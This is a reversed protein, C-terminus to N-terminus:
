HAARLHQLVDPRDFANLTFVGDNPIEKRPDLTVIHVDKALLDLALCAIQLTTLALILVPRLFM